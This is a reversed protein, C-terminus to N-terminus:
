PRKCPISLLPVRRRNPRLYNSIWRPLVEHGRWMRAVLGRHYSGPIFCLQEHLGETLWSGQQQRTTTTTRSSSLEEQLTCKEQSSAGPASQYFRDSMAYNKAWGWYQDASGKTGDAMAFNQNNAGPCGTVNAGTVTYSDM